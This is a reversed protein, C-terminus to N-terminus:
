LLTHPIPGGTFRPHDLHLNAYILHNLNFILIPRFQPRIPTRTTRCSPMEAYPCLRCRICVRKRNANVIHGVPSRSSRAVRLLVDADHADYPWSYCATKQAVSRGAIGAWQTDSTLRTQPLDNRSPYPPRYKRQPLAPGYRDPLNTSGSAGRRCLAPLALSDIFWISSREVPKYWEVHNRNRAANVSIRRVRSLQVIFQVQERESSWAVM